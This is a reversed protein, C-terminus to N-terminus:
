GQERAGAVGELDTLVQQPGAVLRARGTRILHHAFGCTPSNIPGPYALLPWGANEALLVLGRDPGGQAPEILVVAAALGAALQAQRDAALEPVPVGPAAETLLLGERAVRDFLKRHGTPVTTSLPASPLVLVPGSASLAGRIVSGGIGFGGSTVVTWGDAALDRGLDFAAKDGYPSANRTGAVCVVRRLLQGLHGDGRVWLGLPPATGLGRGDTPLVKPLSAPWDEDEATLLRVGAAEATDLLVEARRWDVGTVSATHQAALVPGAEAVLVAANEDGPTRTLMLYARAVREAEWRSM